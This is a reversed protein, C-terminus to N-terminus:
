KTNPGPGGYKKACENLKDTAEKILRELTSLGNEIETKRKKLEMLKFVSNGYYTEALELSFNAAACAGFSPPNACVDDRTQKALDRAIKLLENNIEESKIEGIVELLEESLIRRKEILEELNKRLSDCPHDINEMSCSLPFILFFAFIAILICSQIIHKKM